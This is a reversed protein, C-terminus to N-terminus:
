VAETETKDDYIFEVNDGDVVVRGVVRAPSGVAISCPPISRNVFSNAGVVSHHGIVVGRAIVTQPGIYCYDEIEVPSLEQSSRGGTLAWKVTDHTYIQVGSSISCNEGIKLGGEGDLVTFPGIWTDGGVAVDGKVLSSDYISSGEEFGLFRAREWRDFLEDAFPVGRKYRTKVEQRLDRHLQWLLDHNAVDRKWGDQWTSGETVPYLNETSGNRDTM